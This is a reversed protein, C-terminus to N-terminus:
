KLVSGTKISWLVLDLEDFDIEVKDTLRRVKEEVSLYRARNSPPKPDDIIKLEALCRLVHKDLIAYGLYGINRLFHSAEKYGLGKIGKERALWDRRAFDDDFGALREPLRMECDGNLFDRSYVVYKARANPYRHVGTLASALEDVSGEKLLPRTAEVSRLGMRASCGGTFFCYVMEEWYRDACREAKVARFESLRSRIEDRRERHVAKITGITVPGSTKKVNLPESIKNKAVSLTLSNITRDRMTIDILQM